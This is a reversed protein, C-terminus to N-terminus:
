VAVPRDRASAHWPVLWRRLGAVAVYLLIGMASLLVVVAFMRDVRLSNLNVVALHGLGDRGGALFEAVVAGVNALVIAVEMGTLVSPLASRADILWLRKWRSMQLTAALDLQAPDISRIGNRTGTTMPFFAFMAAIAINTRVSFGMWLLLLPIVAVKPLVQLVVIYPNIVRAVRPLEGLITGLLAGVVVAIAFGTVIETFTVWVHHWTRQEQVLEVLASWVKDPPPLIFRSTDDIEVFLKWGGVFVVAVVAIWVVTALPLPRRRVM